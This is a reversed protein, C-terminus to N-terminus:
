IKPDIIPLIVTVLEDIQDAEAKSINKKGM